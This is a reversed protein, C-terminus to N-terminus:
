KTEDGKTGKLVEVKPLQLLYGAELRKISATDLNTWGYEYDSSSTTFGVLDYLDSLSAKGKSLLIKKIRSLVEEAEVRNALVIDKIHMQFGDIKSYSASPSASRNNKFHNNLYNEFPTVESSYTYKKNITSTNKFLSSAIEGGCAAYGALDVYNDENYNGSSIRAIKLLAMMIAVDEVTFTINKKYASWLNAVVEFNDEPSGYDEERKGCVCEEAQKLIERRKNM